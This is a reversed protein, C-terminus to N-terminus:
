VQSVSLYSYRIDYLSVYGDANTVALTSGDMSTCMQHEMDDSGDVSIQSHLVNKMQGSFSTVSVDGNRSDLILLMDIGSAITIGQPKGVSLATHAVFTKRNIPDEGSSKFYIVKSKDLDSLMLDFSNTVVLNRPSTCYDAPIKKRVRGQLDIIDIRTACFPPCLCGILHKSEKHFAIHAYQGTTLAKRVVTEEGKKLAPYTLFLLQKQKPATVVCEVDSITAVDWPEVYGFDYVNLLGGYQSLVKMCYNARDILVFADGVTAIAVVSPVSVDGSLQIDFYERYVFGSIGDRTSFSANVPENYHVLSTASSETQHTDLSDTTNGSAQLSDGLYESSNGASNTFMDSDLLPPASPEPIPTVPLDLEQPISLPPASPVPHPTASANSSSQIVLSPHQLVREYSPLGEEETIEGSADETATEQPDDQHEDVNFAVVYAGAHCSNTVEISVINSTTMKDELETNIMYRLEFPKTLDSELQPLMNTLSATTKLLDGALVMNQSPKMSTHLMLALALKQQAGLSALLSSCVSSDKELYKKEREELEKAKRLVKEEQKELYHIVKEKLGSYYAKVTAETAGRDPIANELKSSMKGHLVETRSMVDQLDSSIQKIKNYCIERMNKTITQFNCGHHMSAKCRPCALTNCTECYYKCCSRPHISCLPASVGDSTPLAPRENEDSYFMCLNRTLSDEELTSLMTDDVETQPDQPTHEYSCVPCCFSAQGFHESIYGVLCEHCFVHQCKLKKPYNVSEHCVGCKCLTQLIEEM